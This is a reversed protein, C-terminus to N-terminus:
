SFAGRRESLSHGVYLHAKKSSLASASDVFDCGNRDAGVVVKKRQNAIYVQIGQPGVDYLGDFFKVAIGKTTVSADDTLGIMRPHIGIVHKQLKSIRSSFAKCLILNM